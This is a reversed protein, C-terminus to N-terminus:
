SLLLVTADTAGDPCNYVTVPVAAPVTVNVIEASDAGVAVTVTVTVGYNASAPHDTKPQGAKLTRNRERGTRREAIRAAGGAWLPAARIRGEDDTRRCRGSVAVADPPESVPLLM